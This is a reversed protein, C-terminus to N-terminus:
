EKNIGKRRCLDCKKRPNTFLEKCFRNSCSQESRTFVEIKWKVAYNEFMVMKSIIGIYSIWHQRFDNNSENVIKQTAEGRKMSSKVLYSLDTCCISVQWHLAARAIVIAILPKKFSLNYYWSSAKSYKLEWLHNVFNHM